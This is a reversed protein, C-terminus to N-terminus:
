AALTLQTTALALILMLGGMAVLANEVRRLAPQREEPVAGDLLQLGLYVCAALLALFFWLGIWGQGMLAARVQDQPADLYPFLSVILVGAIGAVVLLAAQPFRMRGSVVATSGIILGCVIYGVLSLM